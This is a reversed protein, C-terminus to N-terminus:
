GDQTQKQQQCMLFIKESTFPPNKLRKGCAAAIANALGAISPIMPHEGIGRAGWPGDDQPIEVLVTQMLGPLDAFTAIRYDVFSPNLIRGGNLKLEEFLASSIGQMMGGEIQAKVLQPNIAKGVDFASVAKIIELQGTRIDVEIEFAQAGVTFHVVPREGQGTEPDMGTLYEPVFHGEGSIYDGDTTFLQQYPIERETRYSFLMGEQMDLDQASENWLAAARELLQQRAHSGAISIANGMSWTIRSAVTQWEYAHTRTDNMIDLAIDDPSLQLSEAAIQLAATHAGQGIEQGGINLRVGTSDIQIEANSSATTPMAPAKWVAALGRGRHKHLAAPQISDHWGVKDAVTQLCAELGHAHMRMGNVLTDGEQVLNLLRFVLPDMQMADALMDVCQEVATHLESMGFGRYAGGIPHNTYVCYSDAIVHDIQYPGTCSYGAARAINVGYETFAGGNWHMTNQMALIKGSADCGLKLRITLAQRVFTGYFEEERTLRFKVLKGPVSLAMAVPIAEMTVGAKSGFGGGLYPAIVQVMEKPLDLWDSLMAQQAFPSQVAAWLTIRGDKHVIAAGNHTEIPTHQIHPIQFTDEVVAKCQPWVEEPNGKRLKFHNSINSGAQPYIFDSVTYSALQPHLLPAEPQCAEVADFVPDLLQYTVHILDLAAEAIEESDAIVAAVPEGVYRVRDTAFITRDKLYLGIKRPFDKGSLVAHVGPTSIAASINISQIRAHAHPSRLVRGFLPSQEFRLDDTFLASGNTKAPADRRPYNKGVYSLNM